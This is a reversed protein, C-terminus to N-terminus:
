SIAQFAWIFVIAMGFATLLISVILVYPVYNPEDLESQNIM